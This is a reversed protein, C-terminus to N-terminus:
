IKELVLRNGSLAVVRHRGPQAVQGSQLVATWQAGRHHVHALGEASWAEIQLEEGIDLNVSRDAQAPLADPQRQRLQRLGLVAILGVAAAVSIQQTLGWGAHAALAAAAMGLALMLLYFTGTGMELALLIGAAVWWISANDM